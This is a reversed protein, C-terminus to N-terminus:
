LKTAYHIQRAVEQFGLQPYFDKGVQNQDLTEIRALAMGEQRFFDLAKLILRRGIGQRRHDSAVALNIIRGTSYEYELRTTIYGVVEGEKEAVFIGKPFSNADSRVDDGKKKQWPVDEVQGFVEEINQAIAVGDFAEETIKVLREMDEERFPRIVM